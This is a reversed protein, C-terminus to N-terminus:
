KITFGEQQGQKKMRRLTTSSMGHAETRRTCLLTLPELGLKETRHRNLKKGTPLTEHSLVLADFDNTIGVYAGSDPPNGPLGYADTIPVIKICNKMGPALADVFARFGRIREELPPILETLSKYKLM